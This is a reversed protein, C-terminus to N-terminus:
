SLQVQANSSPVVRGNSPISLLPDKALAAEAGSLVLASGMLSLIQKKMFKYKPPTLEIVM